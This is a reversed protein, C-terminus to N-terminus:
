DYCRRPDMPLEKRAPLGEAEAILNVLLALRLDEDYRHNGSSGEFGYSCKLDGAVFIRQKGDDTLEPEVNGLGWTRIGHDIRIKQLMSGMTEENVSVSPIYRFKLGSGEHLETWGYLKVYAGNFEVLIDGFAHALRSDEGLVLRGELGLEQVFYLSGEIDRQYRATNYPYRLRQTDAAKVASTSGRSAGRFPLPGDITWPGALSMVPQRDQERDPVARRALPRPYSGCDMKTMLGM